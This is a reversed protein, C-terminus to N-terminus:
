TCGPLAPRPRTRRATGAARARARAIGLQARGRRELAEVPQLGRAQEVGRSRSSSRARGVQEPTADRVRQAHHAAVGRVQQQGLAAGVLQAEERASEAVRPRVPRGRGVRQQGVHRAVALRDRAEELLAEREHAAARARADYLAACRTRTARRARRQLSARRRRRRPRARLRAAGGAARPRARRRPARPDPHRAGDAAQEGRRAPVRLRARAPRADAGALAGAARLAELADLTGRARAQRLRGGARIQLVQVVLEIERIGGRGLKVHRSELQRAALRRDSERKHRLVEACRTPGSRSAGCSPRPVRAAARARRARDGAVPRAKLLALREWTAGRRRYYEAAAALSHSISGARGEPRLRLDVRYVHGEATPEGLVATLHRGLAQARADSDRRAPAAATSTSSTSTPASTSSAAARAERARAGRLGAHEAGRRREARHPEGLEGAAVELAVEVCGTPSRRCRRAADREVSTLRLLDRIAIRLVERRRLLRLADRAAGPGRGPSWARAGRRRGRPRAARQALVRPRTLWEAWEPHRIVQEALFPSGGLAWLLAERARPGRELLQQSRRAATRARSASSACSRARARRSAARAHALLSGLAPAAGRGLARSRRRRAAARARGARARRLRLAAALRPGGRGTPGRLAARRLDRARNEATECPPARPQRARGTVRATYARHAHVLPEDDAERARLLLVLRELALVRARGRLPERGSELHQERLVVGHTCIWCIKRRTWAGSASRGTATSSWVRTGSPSSRTARLAARAPIPQNRSFRM